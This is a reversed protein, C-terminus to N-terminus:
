ISEDILRELIILSFHNESYEKDGYFGAIKDFGNKVWFRLGQWNKLHVGLSIKKFQSNNLQAYLAQVVESGQGKHQQNKHIAFFSIWLTQNTPYGRYYDFFGIIKKTDKEIITKCQYFEKQGYPPLDGEVLRNHILVDEFEENTYQKLYSCSQGIGILSEEDDITSDRVILNNTEFYEPLLDERWYKAGNRTRALYKHEILERRLLFYDNFGHNEDIIKNVEKETYIRNYEFKSVLYSLVIKKRKQKSPYVKIKGENNLYNLIDNKM